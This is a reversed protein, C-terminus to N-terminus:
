AESSAASACGRAANATQHGYTQGWTGMATIVPLLAEGATTLVYRDRTRSGPEQYRERTLIGQRVLLQLRDSLVESSVRLAQRIESFKTRGALIERVILLSWKEGVLAICLEAQTLLEVNATM